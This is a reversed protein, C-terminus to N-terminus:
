VATLVRMRVEQHVQAPEASAALRRTLARPVSTGQWAKVTDVLEAGTQFSDKVVFGHEGEVTWLGDAITSAVQADIAAILKSWDRMDLTGLDGAAATVTPRPSVPQTDILL